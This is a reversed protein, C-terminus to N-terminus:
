VMLRVYLRGEGGDDEDQTSLVRQLDSGVGRAGAPWFRFNLLDFYIGRLQDVPRRSDIPLSSRGSPPTSM